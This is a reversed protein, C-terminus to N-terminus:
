YAIRFTNFNDLKESWKIIVETVQSAPSGKTRLWQILEYLHNLKGEAIVEVDGNPLNKVSGTLGLATAKRKTYWRFSVGQVYGKVIAKFQSIKNNTM